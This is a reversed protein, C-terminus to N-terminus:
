AVVSEGVGNLPNWFMRPASKVVDPVPKTCAGGDPRAVVKLLAIYLAKRVKLSGRRKVGIALVRVFTANKTGPVFPPTGAVTVPKPATNESTSDVALAERLKTFAPPAESPENKAGVAFWPRENRPTMKGSSSTAWTWIMLPLTGRPRLSLPAISM